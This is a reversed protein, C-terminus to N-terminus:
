RRPLPEEFIDCKEFLYALVAIVATEHDPAGKQEGGAFIWLQQFIEDPLLSQDRLRKYEQRFAEAIENGFTPDHWDDFFRGVLDARTMGASLLTEAHPSLANASLKDPPVPRIDQVPLPPKRAITSLVIQLSDYGLQLMNQRAPAHGLLSALNEESLGFVEQRLEEYGWHTVQIQANDADIDLLTKTVDPGLGRRSNHVFVWTDFYEEWYPLAGNFDEQIKAIAKTAKMENPAYVQFLIRKSKLYGDNKRDGVNGWPRVRIFDGPYRKEMIECFFDQFEDDGKSLFSCKFELEYYARTFDDMARKTHQCPVIM